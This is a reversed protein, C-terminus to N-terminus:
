DFNYPQFFYVALYLSVGETISRLIQGTLERAAIEPTSISFTVNDGIDIKYSGSPGDVKLYAGYNSINEIQCHIINNQYNILVDGPIVIREYRRKEIGM